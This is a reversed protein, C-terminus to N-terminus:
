LVSYPFTIYKKGIDSAIKRMKKSKVGNRIKMNGATANAFNPSLGKAPRRKKM